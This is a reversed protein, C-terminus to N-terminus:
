AKSGAKNCQDKWSKYYNLLGIRKGGEFYLGSNLTIILNEVDSAHEPEWNLEEVLYAGIAKEDLSPEYEHLASIFTKALENDFPDIIGTPMNISRTLEELAMKVVCAPEPNDKIPKTKM